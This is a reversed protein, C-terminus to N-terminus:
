YTRRCSSLATARRDGHSCPAATSQRQLRITSHRQGVTSRKPTRLPLCVWLLLWRRKCLLLLLQVRLWLWVLLWRAVLLLRVLLM